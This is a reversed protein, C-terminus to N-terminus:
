RSVLEITSEFMSGEKDSEIWKWFTGITCQAVNSLWDFYIVPITISANSEACSFNSTQFWTAGWDFSGRPGSLSLELWLGLNAWPQHVIVQSIDYPFLYFSPVCYSCLTLLILLFLPDTPVCSCYSCLITSVSSRYSRLLILLFPPDAPVTRDTPVSPWFSCYSWYSCLILLFLLILLFPPESPVTPVSSWYSCLIPLFLLILLFLPDTPVSSWLSCLILLFLLFLPDTPVVPGTPVSSQYFCYSWYSCLILLFM